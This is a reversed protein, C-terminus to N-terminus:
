SWWKRIRGNIDNHIQPSDETKENETQKWKPNYDCVVKNQQEFQELKPTPARETPAHMEKVKEMLTPM